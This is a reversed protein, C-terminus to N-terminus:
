GVVSRATALTQGLESEPTVNLESAIAQAEALATAAGTPEGALHEVQAKKCLLKGLELKYVGRLQREGQALLIRAEEFAENQARILALSGRFAGAAVPWTEDGVAIADQLYAEASLQDGQSLFLDGLNGVNVCESRRDGRERAIALAQHYHELAESIRGQERYLSALAGGHGG